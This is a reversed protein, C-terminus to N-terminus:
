GNYATIPKYFERKTRRIIAYKVKELYFTVFTRVNRKLILEKTFRTLELTTQFDNKCFLKFIYEADAKKRKFVIQLWKQFFDSSLMEAYNDAYKECFVDYSGSLSPHKKDLFFHMIWFTFLKEDPVDPFVLDNEDVKIGTYPPANKFSYFKCPLFCIRTKIDLLLDGDVIIGISHEAVSTTVKANISMENLKDALRKVNPKSIIIDVDKEDIKLNIPRLLYFPIDWDDLRKFWKLINHNRNINM